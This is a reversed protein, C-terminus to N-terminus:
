YDDNLDDADFGVEDDYYEGQDDYVHEEEDMMTADGGAYGEGDDNEEEIIVEESGARATNNIAANNQSAAATSPPTPMGAGGTKVADSETENIVVEEEPEATNGRRYISKLKEYDILSSFGPARKAMMKQVSEAADKAPMDGLVSGDGMRTHKKRSSPKRVKKGSAEELAKALMKKQKERLWDENQTVWIRELFAIQEATNLCNQVEWDDAFEDEEIDESYQNQGNPLVQKLILKAKEEIEKHIPNNEDAFIDEWHAINEMMDKEIAAEEELDEPAIVIPTRNKKPRDARKQPKPEEDEGELAAHHTDGYSLALSDLENSVAALAHNVDERESPVSSAPQGPVAFGDADRCPQNAYSPTSIPASISPGAQAETAVAKGKGKATKRKKTVKAAEVASTNETSQPDPTPSGISEGDSIDVVEKQRKKKAAREEREQRKYISPPLIDDKLRHGYEKFQEVSLGAAKLRNFEALRTQVTQDAVKVVYVIERITRRFNNMRAAMFICAGCLGAPQRGLTMWDRDMRKLLMVADSAVKYADEEFELKQCYKLMLPEIELPQVTMPDDEMMLVDLLDKYVDGLAFVNTQIKEALDMLLVTNGKRRRCAIYLAAAAVTRIRRGQIFNHNLALRYIGIAQDQILEAINCSFGIGRIAQRGNYESQERSTMGDGGPVGNGMTNAHRQNDGVFGGQVMAAGSSTEGFTVESVIEVENIVTGCNGCVRSGNRERIEPDDCCKKEKLKKPPGIPRPTLGKPPPAFSKLSSLRAPPGRPARAVTAM